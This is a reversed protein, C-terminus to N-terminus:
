IKEEDFIAQTRANYHRFNSVTKHYSIPRRLILTLLSRGEAGGWGRELLKM